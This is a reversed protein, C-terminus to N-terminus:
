STVATKHLERSSAKGKLEYQRVLLPLLDKLCPIASLAIDELM